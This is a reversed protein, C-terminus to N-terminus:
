MGHPEGAHHLLYRIIAAEAWHIDNAPEGESIPAIDGM